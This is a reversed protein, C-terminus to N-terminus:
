TEYQPPGTTWLFRRFKPVLASFTRWVGISCRCILSALSVIEDDYWGGHYTADDTQSWDISPSVASDEYNEIRLVMRTDVTGSESSLANLFAYPCDPLDVQGTFRADSYVDYETVETPKKDSPSEKKVLWNRQSFLRQNMSM